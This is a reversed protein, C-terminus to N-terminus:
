HILRYVVGEHEMRTSAKVRPVRTEDLVSFFTNLWGGEQLQGLAIGSAVQYHYCAQDLAGAKLAM